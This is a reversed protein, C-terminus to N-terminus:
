RGFDDRDEGVRLNEVVMFRELRLWRGRLLGHRKWDAFRMYVIVAGTLKELPEFFTLLPLSAQNAIIAFFVAEFRHSRTESRTKIADCSFSKGWWTRARPFNKTKKWMQSPFLFNLYKDRYIKSNIIAHFASPNLSHSSFFACVLRSFFQCVSVLQIINKCNFVSFLNSLFKLKLCEFVILFVVFYKCVYVVTLCLACHCWLHYIFAYGFCFTKGGQAGVAM